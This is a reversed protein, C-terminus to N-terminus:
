SVKLTNLLQQIKSSVKGQANGLVYTILVTLVSENAVFSSCLMCQCSDVFHLLVLDGSM